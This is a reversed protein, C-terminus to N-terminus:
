KKIWCKNLKAFYDDSKRVVCVSLITMIKPILKQVEHYYNIFLPLFSRFQRWYLLFYSESIDIQLVVINWIIIAQSSQFRKENSFYKKTPTDYLWWKNKSVCLDLNPPDRLYMSYTRVTLLFIELPRLFSLNLGFFSTKDSYEAWNGM